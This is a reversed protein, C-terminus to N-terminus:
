LQFIILSPNLKLENVVYGKSDYPFCMTYPHLNITAIFREINRANSTTDCSYYRISIPFHIKDIRRNRYLKNIQSIYRCMEILVLKDDVFRPLM